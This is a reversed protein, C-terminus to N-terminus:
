IGLGALQQPWAQERSVGVGYTQSDGMALVSVDEPVNENRFGIPDHGPTRPNPRWGLKEDKISLPIQGPTLLTEVTPFVWSLGALTLESAVITATFLIASFALERRKLRM